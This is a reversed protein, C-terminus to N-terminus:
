RDLSQEISIAREPCCEVATRALEKLEQPVSEMIVTAQMDTDKFAFLTPARDVCLGHGQCLDCDIRLRM